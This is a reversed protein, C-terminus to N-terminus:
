VAFKIAILLVVHIAMHAVIASELGRRWYLSGAFLGFLANATVVYLVLPLTLGGSLLAAIPLHGAGFALASGVVAAVVWGAAPRGAPRKALRWPVWVLFTMLGWRLLVEETFGGYLFRTADPLMRNFDQARAVFQPALHPKAVVWCAVALVGCVVGAVVGPLIQPKLRAFWDERKALAEAVPARLGVQPALFNGVLVAVTILVAPQILSLLKFVAPPPLKVPPTGPPLPISAVLAPLDVLLFSLVGVMGAAWIIWFLRAKVSM